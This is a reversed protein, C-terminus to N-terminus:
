GEPEAEDEDAEFAVDDEDAESDIEADADYEADSLVETNGTETIVTTETETVTETETEAVIPDAEVDAVQATALTSMGFAAVTSIFIAKTM